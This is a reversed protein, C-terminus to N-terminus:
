NVDTTTPATTAKTNSPDSEAALRARWSAAEEPRDTQECIRALDNMIGGIRARDHARVKSYIELAELLLPEAEALRGQDRL